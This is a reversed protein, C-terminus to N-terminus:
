NCINSDILSSHKLIKARRFCVNTYFYCVNVCGCVPHSSVISLDVFCVKLLVQYYIEIM